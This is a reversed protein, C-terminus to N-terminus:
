ESNLEYDLCDQVFNLHAYVEPAAYGRKTRKKKAKPKPTISESDEELENDSPQESLAETKRKTSASSEASPRPKRRPAMSSETAPTPSYRSGNSSVLDIVVALTDRESLIQYKTKGRIYMGSVDRQTQASPSQIDLHQEELSEEAVKVEGSGADEDDLKLKVDNEEEKGGFYKSLTRRGFPAATAEKKIRSTEGRSPSSTPSPTEIKVDLEATSSGSDGLNDM